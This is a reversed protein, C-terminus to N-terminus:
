TAEGLFSWAADVQEALTVPLSGLDPRREDTSEGMPDRGDWPLQDLDNNNRATTPYGTSVTVISQFDGHEAVVTRVTGQESGAFEVVFADGLETPLVRCERGSAGPPAIAIDCGTGSRAVVLSSVYGARQGDLVSGSWSRSDGDELGGSYGITLGPALFPEIGFIGDSDRPTPRGTTFVPDSWHWGEPAEVSVEPAGDGVLSDDTGSTPWSLAAGVGLVLGAVVAVSVAGARRRRVVVRGDRVARDVDIDVPVPMGALSHLEEVVDSSQNTM